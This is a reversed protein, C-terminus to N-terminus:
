AWREGKLAFMKVAPVALAPVPVAVAFVVAALVIRRQLAAAIQERGLMLGLAFMVAFVTATAFPGIWQLPVLM